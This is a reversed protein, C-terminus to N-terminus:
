ITIYEFNLVPFLLIAQFLPCQGADSSIENGYRGKCDTYLQAKETNQEIMRRM